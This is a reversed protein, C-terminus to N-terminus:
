GAGTAGRISGALAGSYLVDALHSSAVDMWHGATLSSLSTAGTAGTPTPTPAPTPTPTPAPTASPTADYVPGMFDFQSATLGPFTQNKITLTAGHDLSVVVDNGVQHMLPQLAAFSQEAYHELLITDGSNFDTITVNGGGEHLVFTDNGG